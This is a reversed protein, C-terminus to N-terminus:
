KIFEDLLREYDYGLAALQTATAPKWMGCIGWLCFKVM